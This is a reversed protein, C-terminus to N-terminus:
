LFFKKKHGRWDLWYLDPSENNSPSSHLVCHVIYCVCRLFLREPFRPVSDPNPFNRSGHHNLAEKAPERRELRVGEFPQPRHLRQVRLVHTREEGDAVRGEAGHREELSEAEPSDWESQIYLAVILLFAFSLNMSITKTLEEAVGQMDREMWQISRM